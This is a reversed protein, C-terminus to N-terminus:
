IWGLESFEPFWRGDALLWFLGWGLLLALGLGGVVLLLASVPQPRWLLGLGLAAGLVVIGLLPTGGEIYTNVLTLAVLGALVVAGPNRRIAVDRLSRALAGLVLALGTYWIWHSAVEDWLHVVPADAVTDDAVNSVSNAALHIGHGLTFTIGGIGFLVWARREAQVLHLIVAACGLIVYPTALDLWDAVRTPGVSGLPKAITGLQLGVVLAAAFGALWRGVVSDAPAVGTQAAAGPSDM